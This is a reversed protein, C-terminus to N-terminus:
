RLNAVPVNANRQANAQAGQNLGSWDGYKELRAQRDQNASGADM